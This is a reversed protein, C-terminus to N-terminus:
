KTEETRVLIGEQYYEKKEIKGKSNYYIWTGSPHGLSYQGSSMKQGSDYYSTFSGEKDDNKYYGRFKIKGDTYYQEWTGERIGSKWTLLEAIGKGAYYTKSVGDKKGNRYYEESTLVGDIDSFFKWLSDKKENIYIGEAMKKGNSFYSTTHSRKGGSSYESHAKVKGDPYFYNFAGVPIGDKFHGEYIKVGTKDTKRWFGQMKGHDDVRNITDQAKLVPAALALMLFIFVKMMFNM